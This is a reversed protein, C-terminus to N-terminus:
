YFYRGILENDVWIKISNPKTRPQRLFANCRDDQYNWKASADCLESVCAHKISQGRGVYDTVARYGSGCDEFQEYSFEYRGTSSGTACSSFSPLPPKARDLRRHFERRAAECGSPFGAPLCLWIACAAESNAKASYASLFLSAAAIIATARLCNM